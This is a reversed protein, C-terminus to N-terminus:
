YDEFIWKIHSYKKKMYNWFEPAEPCLRIAYIDDGMIKILGDIMKGALGTGRKSKEIVITNIHILYQDDTEFFYFFM